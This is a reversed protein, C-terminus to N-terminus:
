KRYAFAQVGASWEKNALSQEVAEKELAIGHELTTEMGQDICRNIEALSEKLYTPNLTMQGIFRDPYRKMTKLIGDNAKRFEEPTGPGRM